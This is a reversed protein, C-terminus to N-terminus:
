NIGFLWNLALSDDSRNYMVGNKSYFTPNTLDVNLFVSPHSVYYSGDVQEICLYDNSECQIKEIKPGINVVFQFIHVESDAPILEKADTGFNDPKETEPKPDPGEYAIEIAFPCPVGRGFFGGLSNIACDNYTDPITYTTGSKGGDWLASTVFALKSAENCYLDFGATLNADKYGFAWDCGTLVSGVISVSALCFLRALGIRKM